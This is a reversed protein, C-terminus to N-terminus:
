IGQKQSIVHICLLFLIVSFVSRGNWIGGLVGFLALVYVLFSFWFSGIGLWFNTETM